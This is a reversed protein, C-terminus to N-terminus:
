ADALKRVLESKVGVAVIGDGHRHELYYAFVKGRVRYICHTPISM